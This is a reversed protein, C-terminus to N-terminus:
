PNRGGERGNSPRYGYAGAMPLDAMWAAGISYAATKAIRASSDKVFTLGIRRESCISPIFIIKPYPIRDPDVSRHPM